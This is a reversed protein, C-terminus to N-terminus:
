GSQPGPWGLWRAGVPVLTVTRPDLDAEATPEPDPAGTSRAIRVELRSTPWGRPSARAGSSSRSRRTSRPTSTSTTSSRSAASGTPTSTCSTPDAAGALPARPRDRVDALHRRRARRARRGLGQTFTTKGAGLEGSLVVLDGARLSGDSRGASRRAHRRRRPRRLHTPPRPAAGRVAAARATEVFGHGRWFAVTAPLEDRAVVAVETGDATALAEAVLAGAVGLRQASPLVGFRRLWVTEGERSWCWRASPGARSPRWCDAAPRSRPPSRRRRRRWRTPRRTSPRGPRSRRGSWRTCPRGGRRGRPTRRPEGGGGRAPDVLDGAAAFLQDLEADVQDHREMMVMHGAGVCELLTSGAIMAHLKRSHEIKTM